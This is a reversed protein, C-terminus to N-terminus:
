EHFFYISQYLGQKADTLKEAIVENFANRLEDLKDNNLPYLVKTSFETEDVHENAVIYSFRCPVTELVKSFWKIIAMQEVQTVGLFNIDSLKYQKSFYLNPLEFIGSDDISVISFCQQISSYNDFLPTDKVKTKAYETLLM